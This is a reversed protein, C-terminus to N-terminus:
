DPPYLDIPAGVPEPEGNIRRLMSERTREATRHVRAATELDATRRLRTAAEVADHLDSCAQYLWRRDVDSLHRLEHATRGELPCDTERLFQM